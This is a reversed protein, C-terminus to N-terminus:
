LPGVNFLSPLDPSRQLPRRPRCTCACPFIFDSVFIRVPLHDLGPSPWVRVAFVTGVALDSCDPWTEVSGVPDSPVSGPAARPEPNTRRCTEADPVLLFRAKSDRESLLAGPLRNHNNAREGATLNSSQDCEKFTTDSNEEVDLLFRRLLGVPSYIVREGVLPEKTKVLSVIKISDEEDELVHDPVPPLSPEFDRRAVADHM